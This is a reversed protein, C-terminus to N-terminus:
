RPRLELSVPTTDNQSPPMLGLEPLSLPTTKLVEILRQFEADADVGRPAVWARRVVLLFLGLNAYNQLVELATGVRRLAEVETLPMAASADRVLSRCVIM